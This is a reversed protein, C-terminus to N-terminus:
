NVLQEALMRYVWSAYYINVKFSILQSVYIILRSFLKLNHGVLRFGRNSSTLSYKEKDDRVSFPRASNFYMNGLQERGCLGRVHGCHCNSLPLVIRNLPFDVAFVTVVQTIWFNCCVGRCGISLRATSGHLRSEKKPGKKSVCLGVYVCVCILSGSWLVSYQPALPCAILLNLWMWSGRDAASDSATVWSCQQRGNPLSYGFQFTLM